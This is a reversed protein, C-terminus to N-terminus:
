EGHRAPASDGGLAAPLTLQASAALLGDGLVPLSRVFPGAARLFRLVAGAQGAGDGLALPGLRAYVFLLGLRM